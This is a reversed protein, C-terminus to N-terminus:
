RPTADPLGGDVPITAGTTPTQRTAFFIVANAVHKATIRAKLLNRNRYYEELGDPKLGRANMREPGIAEWLGSRRSGNSFVADPAVMNVRVDMRAFEQSAIRALQHGAAKTASYAGFGSGPAFVNKTSIMVIDGGTNQLKFLRACESLMILTGEINIQEIKRFAELSLTELPSVHALGANLVVLDIGGWQQIVTEFGKAASKRDTIDLPVGLVRSGYSCQMERVFEVLNEGELDTVAVHCGQNLLEQVIGSGIAGAAGTVLAIRRALPLLTNERLKTHQLIRYEMDFLDREDMGCYIGMAAIQAKVTLTHSTIDRIIGAARVDKGACIAGLGPVLIVKPFPDMRQVGHPMVDAYKEVYSDYAAAYNHIAESFQTRLKPLNEFEPDDIWLYISKTRILHDSTLPPTAALERGHDSDVISLVDRSILPQVISNVWPHDPDGTPKALLGRVMPAIDTFRKKALEIPTAVNSVLPKRAHARIFKEARNVLKITIDYSERATEGWTVLGHRMLVMGTAEPNEEFKAAAAKALKFGPPLYRLVGVNEGLSEKLLNEGELQNTLALIADPHTHNIFKAPIFVHVLTEISPIAARSDIFHTRFENVMEEDSLRSLARLKRLYDLDLGTFGNPEISAMDYGSAKVYIAQLHEGLLNTHNTKVSCNGGGHLVLRDNSGILSAIHLGVALDEGYAKGYKEIYQAADSDSWSSKMGNDDKITV